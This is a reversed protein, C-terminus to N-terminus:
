PVGDDDIPYQPGTFPTADEPPPVAGARKDVKGFFGQFELEFEARRGDGLRVLEGFRDLMARRLRQSANLHDQGEACHFQGTVLIRKQASHDVQVRVRTIEPLAEGATRLAAEIAERAVRVPGSGTESIVWNSPPPGERRRVLWAFNWLLLAVAALFTLWSMTTDLPVHAVRRTEEAPAEGLTAPQVFTAIWVAAVGNAVVLDVILLM